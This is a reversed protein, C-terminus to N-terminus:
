QVASVMNDLHARQLVLQAVGVQVAQWAEGVPLNLPSVALCLVRVDM